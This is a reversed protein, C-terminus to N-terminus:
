IILLNFSDFMLNYFRCHWKKLVMMLVINYKNRIQSSKFSIVFLLFTSKYIFFIFNRWGGHSSNTIISVATTSEKMPSESMETKDWSCTMLPIVMPVIDSQSSANKKILAAMASTATMAPIPPPTMNVGTIIANVGTLLMTMRAVPRM